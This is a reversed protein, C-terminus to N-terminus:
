PSVQLLEGGPSSTRPQSDRQSKEYWGKFTGKIILRFTHTSKQEQLAAM